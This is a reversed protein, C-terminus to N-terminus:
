LGLGAQLKPMLPKLGLLSNGRSRTTGPPLDSLSLHRGPFLPFAPSPAAEWAGRYTAPGGRCGALASFAGRVAACRLGEESRRAGGWRGAAEGARGRLSVTRLFQIEDEGGEGAEAMAGPSHAAGWSRAGRNGGPLLTRQSGSQRQEKEEEDDEEEREESLRPLASSIGSWIPLQALVQSCQLAGIGPSCGAWGEGREGWGLARGGRVGRVACRPARWAPTPCLRPGPGARHLRGRVAGCRVNPPSARGAAVPLHSKCLPWNSLNAAGWNPM